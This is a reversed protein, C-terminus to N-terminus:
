ISNYANLFAEVSAQISDPSIARGLVIRGNKFLRIETIVVADSSGRRVNTQYDKLSCNLYKPCAKIIANIIADFPGTGISKGKYEKKNLSIAVEAVAQSDYKSIVQYNNIYLLDQGGEKVSEATISQIIDQIDSVRINKGKLLFYEIQVIIENIFHHAYGIGFYSDLVEVLETQSPIETFVIKNVNFFFVSKNDFFNINFLENFKDETPFIVPPKIASNLIVSPDKLGDGSLICVVKSGPKLRGESHQKYLYAITAAASCEVFLGEKRSLLYQARMIDQDDVDDANGHTNHIADLAKLGDIPNPVAIASAITYMDEKTKINTKNKVAYVLSNAGSSQVGCLKPLQKILNLEKYEKFGKFYASINTGCGVPVVVQDPVNFNMQDILEFAATKQGEVRFAYDGALYFGRKKAIKYALNAADNYTGKVQIIKGGYSIVQAMKSLSVGDPVLIFCPINAAACYCACSAAMNGTSALIIAKAGLEKAVSVEVASGRDKFSGTPNKGEVKFYLDIGLEDSIYSSKILPTAIEKLSIFNSHKNLPLLSLYKAMCPVMASFCDLNMKHKVQEFDMNVQFQSNEGTFVFDNVDVKKKSIFDVLEYM